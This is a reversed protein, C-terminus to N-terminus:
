GISRTIAPSIMPKIGPMGTMLRLGSITNRIKRGGNNYAAAHFVEHLFKQCNFLGIDMNAKPNTINVAVAMANVALARM